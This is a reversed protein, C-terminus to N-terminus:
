SKSSFPDVIRAFRNFSCVFNVKKHPFNRSYQRQRLEVSPGPYGYSFRSSNLGVTPPVRAFNDYNPLHYVLPTHALACCLSMRIGVEHKSQEVTLSDDRFMCVVYTFQWMSFPHQSICMNFLFSSLFPRMGRTSCHKRLRRGVQARYGLGTNYTPSFYRPQNVPSGHFPETLSFVTHM